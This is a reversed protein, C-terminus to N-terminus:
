ASIVFCCFESFEYGDSGNIDDNRIIILFFRPFDPKSHSRLPKECSHPGAFEGTTKHSETSSERSRYFASTDVRTEVSGAKTYVIDGPSPFFPQPLELHAPGSASPLARQCPMAPLLLVEVVVSLPESSLPLLPLPPQRHDVWSSDFKRRCNIGSGPAEPSIIAEAVLFCAAPGPLIQAMVHERM